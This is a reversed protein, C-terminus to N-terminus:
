VPDTGSDVVTVVNVDVGPEVPMSTLMAPKDEFITAVLSLPNCQPGLGWHSLRKGVTKLIYILDVTAALKVCIGSFQYDSPETASCQDHSLNFHTM